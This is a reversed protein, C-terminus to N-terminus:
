KNSLEKWKQSLRWFIYSIQIAFVILLVWDIIFILFVEWSFSSGGTVFKSFFLLLALFLLLIPLMRM